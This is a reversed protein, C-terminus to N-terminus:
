YLFLTKGEAEAVPLFSCEQAQFSKPFYHLEQPYVSIDYSFPLLLKIKM